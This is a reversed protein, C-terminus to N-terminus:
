VHRVIRRDRIITGAVNYRFNESYVNVGTILSLWERTAHTIHRNIESPIHMGDPAVYVIVTDYLRVRIMGFAGQEVTVTTGVKRQYKDRGAALFARLGNYSWDVERAKAPLRFIYM